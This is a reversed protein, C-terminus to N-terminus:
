IMPISSPECLILCSPRWNRYSCMSSSCATLPINLKCNGYRPFWGTMSGNTSEGCIRLLCVWPASLRGCDDRPKPKFHPPSARLVHLRTGLRMRMRDYDVMEYPVYAFTVDHGLRVLATILAAIRARNGAIPPDTPVPSVVLVKM